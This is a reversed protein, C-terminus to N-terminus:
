QPAVVGRVLTAFPSQPHLRLFAQARASAEDERGSRALSTVALAEREEAYVDAGGFRAQDEAALTVAAAPDAAAVERLHVIAAIEDHLSHSAARRPSPPLPARAPAKAPAPADLVPTIASPVPEAAPAASAVAVHVVPPPAVPGTTRRTERATAAHILAMAGVAGVGIAIAHLGPMRLVRSLLSPSTAAAAVAATLRARGRETDYEVTAYRAYVGLDERLTAPTAPDDRLRPESKM